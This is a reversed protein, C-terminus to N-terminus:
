IEIPARTLVVPVVASLSLAYTSATRPTSSSSSLTDTVPQFSPKDTDILSITIIIENDTNDVSMQDSNSTATM